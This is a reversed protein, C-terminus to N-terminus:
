TARKRNPAPRKPSAPRIAPHGPQQNEIAKRLLTLETRIERLEGMLEHVLKTMQETLAGLVAGGERPEAPRECVPGPGHFPFVATSIEPGPPEDLFM